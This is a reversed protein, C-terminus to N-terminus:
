LYKMMMAISRDEKMAWSKILKLMEWEDLFLIEVWHEWEDGTLTQEWLETIIWSVYYLDWEVTAWAKSVHDIQLNKMTDVGAEEKAELKAATIVAAKLKEEDNRVKLYSDLDDFVKGGPLRYDFDDHEFRHERTVLLKGETNKLVLRVGPPRVAREFWKDAIKEIAILKWKYDIQRTHSM